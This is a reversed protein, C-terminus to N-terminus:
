LRDCYACRRAGNLPLYRSCRACHGVVAKVEGREEAAWGAELIKRAQARALNAAYRRSTKGTVRFYPAKRLREAIARPLNEPHRMSNCAYPRCRPCTRGGPLKKEPLVGAIASELCNCFDGEQAM